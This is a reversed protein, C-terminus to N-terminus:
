PAAEALASDHVSLQPLGGHEQRGASRISVTVEPLLAPLGSLDLLRYPLPSTLASLRPGALPPAGCERARSVVGEKPGPQGTDRGELSSAGAAVRESPFGRAQQAQEEVSM